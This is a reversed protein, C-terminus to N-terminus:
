LENNNNSFNLEKIWNNKGETNDLTNFILLYLWCTVNLFKRLILRTLLYKSSTNQSNKIEFYESNKIARFFLSLLDLFNIKYLVFCASIFTYFNIQSNIFKSAKKLIWYLYVYLEPPSEQIHNGIKPWYNIIEGQMRYLKTCFM